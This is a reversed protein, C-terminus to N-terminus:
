PIEGPRLRRLADRLVAPNAMVGGGPTTTADTAQLDFRKRLGWIGLFLLGHLGSVILWTVCFARGFGVAIWLRLAAMFGLIPLLAVCFGLLRLMKQWHRAPRSALMWRAMPYGAASSPCSAVWVLIAIKAPDVRIDSWVSRGVWGVVLFVGLACLSNIWSIKLCVRTYQWATPPLQFPLNGHAWGSVVPVVRLGYFWLGYAALVHLGVAIGLNVPRLFWGLALPLMIRSALRWHTASWGPGLPYLVEALAREKATLARAVLREIWGARWWDAPTRLRRTLEEEVKARTWNAPEEDAQRIFQHDPAFRVFRARIRGLWVPVLLALGVTALVEWGLRVPGNLSRCFAEGTWGGPLAAYVPDVFRAIQRGDLVAPWIPTLAFTGIVVGNLLLGKTGEAVKPIRAPRGARWAVWALTVAFVNFAHLCGFMLGAQWQFRGGFYVGVLGGLLGIGVGLLIMLGGFDFVCQGFVRGPAVPLRAVPGALAQQLSTWFVRGCLLMWTLILDILLRCGVAVPETASDSNGLSPKVFNFYLLGAAVGLWVTVAVWAPPHSWYTRRYARWKEPSKRLEARAAAHLGQEFAPSHLRM